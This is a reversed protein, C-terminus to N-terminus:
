REVRARRGLLWRRLRRLPSHTRRYELLAEILESSNVEDPPARLRLGRTSLWEAQKALASHLSAADRLEEEPRAIRVESGRVVLNLILGDSAYATFIGSEVDIPELAAEASGVDQYVEALGTEDVIAVAGETTM